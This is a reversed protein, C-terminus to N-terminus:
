DDSKYRSRIVNASEDLQFRDAGNHPPAHCVLLHRYPNICKSNGATGAGSFDSPRIQRLSHRCRHLPCVMVDSITGM